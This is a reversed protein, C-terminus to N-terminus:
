VVDEDPDIVAAVLSGALAPHFGTSGSPVTQGLEAIHNIQELTMPRMILVADGKAALPDEGVALAESKAGTMVREIFLDAVVPDLRQLARHVQIGENIPSVEPSLTLKWADPEGTWAVVFAPQHAVTDALAARQRALDKGAGAVKDVIFYRRAAALTAASPTGGRIVRSRPATILAPDDFNALCM